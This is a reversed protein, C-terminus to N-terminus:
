EDVVEVKAVNGYENYYVSVMDGANFADVSAGAVYASRVKYGKDTDKGLYLMVGRVPKNTKKSTYDVKEVGIIVTKNM